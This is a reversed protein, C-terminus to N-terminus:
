QSNQSVQHRVAHVLKMKGEEAAGDLGKSVEIEREAEHEFEDARQPMVPQGANADDDGGNQDNLADMPDVASKGNELAEMPDDGVEEEEDDDDIRAIKVPSHTPSGAAARKKKKHVKTASKSPGAQNSISDSM